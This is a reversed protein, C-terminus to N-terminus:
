RDTDVPGKDVSLIATPVGGRGIRRTLVAVDLELHDFVQFARAYSKPLHAKKGDKWRGM